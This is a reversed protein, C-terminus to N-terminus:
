FLFLHMAADKRIVEKKLFLPLFYKLTDRVTLAVFTFSVSVKGRSIWGFHPAIYIYPTIDPCLLCELSCCSKSFYNASYKVIYHLCKNTNINEVGCFLGQVYNCGVGGGRKQLLPGYNRRYPKFPNIRGRSDTLRYWFFWVLFGQTTVM